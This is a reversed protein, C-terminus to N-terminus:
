GGMPYVEGLNSDYCYMRGLREVYFFIKFGDGSVKYNFNKNVGQTKVWLFFEGETPLRSNAGKFSEIYVRSKDFFSVAEKPVARSCGLLMFMVFGAILKNVLRLAEMGQPKIM